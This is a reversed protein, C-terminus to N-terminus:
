NEEEEDEALFEVPTKLYLNNEELCLVIDNIKKILEKVKEELLKTSQELEKSM